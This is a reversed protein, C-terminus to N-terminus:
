KWVEGDGIVLHNHSWKTSVNVRTGSSTDAICVESFKARIVSKCCIDDAENPACCEVIVESRLNHYHCLPIKNRM